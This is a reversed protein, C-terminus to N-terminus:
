EKKEKFGQELLLEKSQKMSIYKVKQNEDEQDNITGMLTMVEQIDAKEYDVTVDETMETDSFESKYTVGEIDYEDKVFSFMEEAEEKSEIGLTEYKLVSHSEQKVVKDGKHTYTMETIVGDLDAEFVTTSLGDDKKEKKSSTSGGSSCAAVMLCVVLLMLGLLWNRQKMKM